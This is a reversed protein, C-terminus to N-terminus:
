RNANMMSNVALAVHHVAVARAVNMVVTTVARAVIMVVTTVAHAVIMVVTMVARAVNPVVAERVLGAAVDAVVAAHIANSAHNMQLPSATM